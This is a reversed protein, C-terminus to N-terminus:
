DQTSQMVLTTEQSHIALTWHSSPLEETRQTEYTIWTEQTTQATKFTEMQFATGTVQKSNLVHLSVTPYSSYQLQYNESRPTSQLGVIPQKSLRPYDQTTQATKFTELQFAAATVQKTNLVHLSVTPYSSYQLQYNESRPTSQLGVIPQKSLRPYDQTTQATKFTEMQFATATVQKTNLVHLSVTPYSSYQLQYNESRPTSQLGVIPQKSLRPYDQTTQATKFTEMQFATATVQKTNLVHLSVTPYSSYQLQYNESRPTSQLGVIPQKPLRPYDQTTQATKFTEMQFATATVQKTNLVHLSVTPYSSYQLQYNESRPTSQLGVIPQKSLRPYDQTTQATKFTEMQFATATVQKTNLVHLSGTPYSSYQLQYNESRPTSQLGVIPQKPLVKLAFTSSNSGVPNTASCVYLGSDHLTVNLILLETDRVITRTIPLDGEAKSWTVLPQPHGSAVCRITLNDGERTNEM